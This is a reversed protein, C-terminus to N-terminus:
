KEKSTKKAKTLARGVFYSVNWQSIDKINNKQEEFIHADFVKIKQEIFDGVYKLTIVQSAFMKPQQVREVCLIRIQM